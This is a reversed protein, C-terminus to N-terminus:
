RRPGSLGALSLVLRVLDAQRSIGHKRYVRKLLWRVSSEQRGTAAAIERVTRGTALLAAVESESATLDLVKSVLASDIRPQSGPDVVLVLAVVRQPGFDARDIAAPSVHVALRPLGLARWVAM